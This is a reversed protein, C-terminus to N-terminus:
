AAMVSRWSASRLDHHGIRVDRVDNREDARAGAAARDIGPAHEDLQFRPLRAAASSIMLRSRGFSVAPRSPMVSDVQLGDLVHAHATARRAGLVLVRQLVGFRSRAGHTPASPARAGACPEWADLVHVGVLLRGAELELHSTSRSM